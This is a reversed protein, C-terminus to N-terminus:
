GTFGEIHRWAYEPGTTVVNGRAGTVLAGAVFYVDVSGDSPAAGAGAEFATQPTLVMYAFQHDKLISGSTRPQEGGSAGLTGVVVEDRVNVFSAGVIASEATNRSGTPDAPDMGGALTPALNDFGSQDAGVTARAVGHVASLGADSAFGPWVPDASNDGVGANGAPTTWATATITLHPADHSETDFVFGCQFPSTIQEASAASSPDTSPRVTSSSPTPTAGQSYCDSVPAILPGGPTVSYATVAMETGGDIMWVSLLISPGDPVDVRVEGAGSYPVVETAGSPYAVLWTQGVDEPTITFVIEESAPHIIMWREEPLYDAYRKQVDYPYPEPWPTACDGGGTGPAAKTEWPMNIAAAVLAGATLMTGGGIGAARVTRRTRVRRAVGSGRADAFDRGSMRAADAAVLDNMMGHMSTDM